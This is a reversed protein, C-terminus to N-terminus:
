VIGPICMIFERVHHHNLNMQQSCESGYYMGSKNRTYIVKYNFGLQTFSYTITNMKAKIIMPLQWESPTHVFCAFMNAM